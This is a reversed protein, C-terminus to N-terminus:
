PKKEQAPLESDRVDGVLEIGDLDHFCNVDGLKDLAAELAQDALSTNGDDEFSVTLDIRIDAYKKM